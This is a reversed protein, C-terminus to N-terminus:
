RFGIVRRAISRLLRTLIFLPSRERAAVAAEIEALSGHNRCRIEGGKSLGTGVYECAPEPRSMQVKLCGEKLLLCSPSFPDGCDALSDITGSAIDMNFMEIAGKLVRINAACAKDRPQEEAARFGPVVVVAIGVLLALGIVVLFYRTSKANM